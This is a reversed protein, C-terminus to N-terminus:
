VHLKGSIGRRIKAKMHYKNVKPMVGVKKEKREEKGPMVRLKRENQLPLTHQV